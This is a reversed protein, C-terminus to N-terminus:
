FSVAALLDAESRPGDLEAVLAAILDSVFDNM